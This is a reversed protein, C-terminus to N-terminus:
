THLLLRQDHMCSRRDCSKVTSSRVQRSYVDGYNGDLPCSVTMKVVRREWLVSTLLEECVTATILILVFKQCRYIIM